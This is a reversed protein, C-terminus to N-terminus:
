KKTSFTKKLSDLFVSDPKYFTRNLNLPIAIQYKKRKKNKLYSQRLWPNYIKLLKYNINHEYAFLAFNDITSDIEIKKYELPPYLDKKRIKFGYKDPSQMIYKVAIIRNVYRATESNLLLDWYNNTLQRKLQRKLGGIGMNFSAAVLTWNKFTAYSKNFFDCAAQTSKELNYREDVETNIELGYEKATKPLFQWIGRAGSPSVVNLLGSEIMALYKFDDPINNKRLIPEIIPFLSNARKLFLLTQSQWYTNVLFERDITQYVDFYQLPVKEGAFEINQPINVNYIAYNHQFDNHYQKEENEETQSSSFLYFIFIGTLILNLSVIAKITNSKKGAM